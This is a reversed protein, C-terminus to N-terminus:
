WWSFVYPTATIETESMGLKSVLHFDGPWHVRYPLSGLVQAALRQSPGVALRTTEFPSINKEYGSQGIYTCHLMTAREHLWQQPPFPILIVYQSHTSTAKPIWCAIRMRRITIQPRVPRVVNEWMIENVTRNKQFFFFKRFVFHTNQDDRCNQRLCNENHPYNLSINDYM